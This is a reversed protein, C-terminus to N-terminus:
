YTKIKLKEPLPQNNKELLEALTRHFRKSILSNDDQQLEEYLQLAAAYDNTRVFDSLLFEYLKEENLFTHQLGKASRAIAVVAKIKNRNKLYELDKLLRDANFKVAPNILIKRLQQENGACAFALIINVNVNESEHVEKMLEIVRQLLQIAEEKSVSVDSENDNNSLEILATLLSVSQPTKKHQKVFCEFTAVAEHIEKKDLYEKIVTGLFTSSLDCYGKKTLINLFHGALNEDNCTKVSYEGAANLLRWINATMYSIRKDKNPPLDEIFNQADDIRSETILLTALDILKYSDTKFTSHKNQLIQLVELAKDVNNTATWLKILTSLMAPTELVGNQDCMKKVRLARDYQELQVTKLFLRYM